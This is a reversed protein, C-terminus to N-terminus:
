ASAVESWAAVCEALIVVQQELLFRAPKDAMPPTHTFVAPGRLIVVRGAAGAWYMGANRIYGRGLAMPTGNITQVRADHSEPDEIIKQGYLHLSTFRDTHLTGRGAYNAALEAELVAVMEMLSGSPAPVAPNAMIIQQLRTEIAAEAKVDFTGRLRSEYEAPDAVAATDCELGDYIAFGDGRVTSLTMWEKVDPPACFDSWECAQNCRHSQYEAGLGIHPDTTDYVEAVDFLGRIPREQPGPEWYVYANQITAM